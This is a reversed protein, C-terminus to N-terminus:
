LGLEHWAARELLRYHKNWNDYAEKPNAGAGRVSRGDCTWFLESRFEILKIHPKSLKM